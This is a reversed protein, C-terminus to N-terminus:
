SLEFLVYICSLTWGSKQGIQIWIIHANAPCINEIQYLIFFNCWMMDSILLIWKILSPSSPSILQMDLNFLCSFYFQFSCDNAILHLWCFALAVFNLPQSSAMFQFTYLWTQINAGYGTNYIPVMNMNKDIIM